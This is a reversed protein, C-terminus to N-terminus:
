AAASPDGRPALKSRPGIWALIVSGAAIVALGLAQAAAPLGSGAAAGIAATIVAGLPLLGTVITAPARSLAGYWAAVYGLLLGSTLIVWMWGSASPWVPAGALLVYLWMVVAGGAMRAAAALRVPVESFLRKVLVTEVAWLLTAILILTEGTGWGWTEPWGSLLQGAALLSFGALAWQGPRESLFPGALLAVWIFLSKHVLAASPAAAMSLGEFFLLFPISGGVFAVAALGLSGRLSVSAVRRINFRGSVSAPIMSLLILLGVLTNKLTTFLLADGVASLAAKNVYVSVGSIAAACLALSIGTRTKSTM